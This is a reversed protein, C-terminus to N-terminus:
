PTARTSCRRSRTLKRPHSGSAITCGRAGSPRTTSGPRHRLSRSHRPSLLLLPSSSSPSCCCCPRRRPATSLSRAAAVRWRQQQKKEDLFQSYFRITKADIEEHSGLYYDQWSSLAFPLSFLRPRARLFPSSLLSVESILRPSPTKMCARLFFFSRAHEEVRTWALRRSAMRWLHCVMIKDKCKPMYFYMQVIPFDNRVGRFFLLSVTPALEEDNVRGERLECRAHKSASWEVLDLVTMRLAQM